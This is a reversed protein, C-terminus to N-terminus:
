EERGPDPLRLRNPTLPLASKDPPQIARQQNERREPLQPQQRPPLQQRRPEPALIPPPSYTPLEPTTATPQQIAARKRRQRRPLRRDPRREAQKNDDDPEDDVDELDLDDVTDDEDDDVLGLADMLYIRAAEVQALQLRLIADRYEPALEYHQKIQGGYYQMWAAVEHIGDQYREVDAMMGCVVCHGRVQTGAYSLGAIDREAPKIVEPKAKGSRLKRAM